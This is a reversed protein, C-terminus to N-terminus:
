APGGRLASLASWAEVEAVGHLRLFAQARELQKLPFFTSLSLSPRVTIVSWIHDHSLRANVEPADERDAIAEAAALWDKLPVRVTLRPVTLRRFRRTWCKDWTIAVDEVTTVGLDRLCDFGDSITSPKV